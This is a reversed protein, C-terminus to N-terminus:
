LVIFVDKTWRWSMFIIPLSWEFALRFAIGLWSPFRVEAACCLIKIAVLISAREAIACFQMFRRRHYSIFYIVMFRRTCTAADRQRTCVRSPVLRLPKWSICRFEYHQFALCVIDNLWVLRLHVRSREPSINIISLWFVRRVLDARAPIIFLQKWHDLLSKFFQVDHMRLVYAGGM